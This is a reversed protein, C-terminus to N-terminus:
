TSVALRGGGALDTTEEIHSGLRVPQSMTRLAARGLGFGGLPKPTQVQIM